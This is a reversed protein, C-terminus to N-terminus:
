HMSKFGEEIDSDSAIQQASSHFTKCDNKKKYELVLISQVNFKKLDTLM